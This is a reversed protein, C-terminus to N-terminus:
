WEYNSMKTTTTTTTTPPPPPPTWHRAATFMAICRRTGYFALFIKHLSRIDAECPPSQEMSNNNNNNNYNNNNNLYFTFNDRHKVLCWAM